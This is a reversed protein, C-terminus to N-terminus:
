TSFSSSPRAMMDIERRPMPKTANVSSPPTANACIPGLSLVGEAGTIETGFWCGSGGITENTCLLLPQDALKENASGTVSIWHPRALSPGNSDVPKPKKSSSKRMLDQPPILPPPETPPSEASPKAAPATTPPPTLELPTIRAPPAEAPKTVPPAEVPKTAPPAIDVPPRSNLVECGGLPLAAVLGAVIALRRARFTTKM